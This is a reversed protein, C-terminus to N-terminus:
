DPAAEGREFIGAFDDSIWVGMVRSRFDALSCQNWAIVCPEALCGEFGPENLGSPGGAGRSSYRFSIVLLFSTASMM